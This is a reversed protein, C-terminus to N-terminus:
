LKAELAACLAADRTPYEISDTRDHARTPDGSVLPLGWRWGGSWEMVDCRAHACRVAFLADAESTAMRVTLTDILRGYWHTDDASQWVEIEPKLDLGTGDCLTCEGFGPKHPDEWFGQKGKCRDCEVPGDPHAYHLTM